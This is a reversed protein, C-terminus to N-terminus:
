GRRQAATFPGSETPADLGVRRRSRPGDPQGAAPRPDGFVEKAFLDAAGTVGQELAASHVGGGAVDAILGSRTPTGTALAM